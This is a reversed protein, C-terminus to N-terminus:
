NRSWLSVLKGCRYTLSFSPQNFLWMLSVYVDTVNLRDRMEHLNSDLPPPWLVSGLTVIDDVHNWSLYLSDQNRNLCFDSLPLHLVSSFFERRHLLVHLRETGGDSRRVGRRRVKWLRNIHVPTSWPTGFNRSSRNLLLLSPYSVTCKTPYINYDRSTSKTFSRPTRRNTILVRLLDPPLSPNLRRKLLLLVYKM